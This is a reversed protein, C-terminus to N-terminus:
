RAFGVATSNGGCVLVGVKEGERPQYAGSMLAAFAAAGGPEAVVRLVDWLKQQAAVIAEDHVLVVKEVYKQAIPFMLSGVRKPALSDAAVGGAPADVPQGASLAHALTPAAEPEVGIVRVRGAFWAAIGGILGGGGVAVLLTDLNAFQEEFELGTTGQGLLTEPQDFAHVQLAGSNAAWAQSAALADAYREGSVVLEAGYERIRATKAPSSVEPVFIRAPKGLRMAAYAVAIGHNGGSAAAVGTPPTERTLLNAFAGRAKFSGTHQLLELKFIVRFDGLGFEDGGAELIPTRRVQSRILGYTRAINEKDIEVSAM